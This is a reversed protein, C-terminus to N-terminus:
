FVRVRYFGMRSPDIPRLSITQSTALATLDFVTGWSLLDITGEIRILRGPVLQDVDMEFLDGIRVARIVPRPPPDGGGIAAGPAWTPFSAPTQALRRPNAGDVNMIYVESRTVDGLLSNVGNLVVQPALDFAIQSGDPSWAVKTVWLGDALHLGNPLVERDDTGDYNIVHITCQAPLAAIGAGDYRTDERLTHRVYAARQGDSSIAPAYDHQASATGILTGVDDQFFDTRGTPATLQRLFQSPGPATFLALVTGQVSTRGGNGTAPIDSSLTAVIENRAPHWDVGDGGQNFGNREVGLYVYSGEPQADAVRYIELAPFRESIAGLEGPDNTISNITDRSVTGRKLLNMVVVRTGDPSFAKHYPYNITYGSNIRDGITQGLDNTIQLGQTTLIDEFSTIRSVAATAIDHTFVNNSIKFPRGPDQSTLLLRRGDRSATPYLGAPLNVAVAQDGSGDANVRRLAAPATLTPISNYYIVGDAALLTWALTGLLCCLSFRTVILIPAKFFTPTQEM